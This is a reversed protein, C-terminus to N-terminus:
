NGYKKSSMGLYIANACLIGIHETGSELNSDQGFCLYAFPSGTKNLSIKKLECSNLPRDSFNLFSTATPGIYVLTGHGEIM